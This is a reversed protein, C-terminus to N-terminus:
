IKAWPAPCKDVTFLVRHTIVDFAKLSEEGLAIFSKSDHMFELDIALDEYQIEDIIKGLKSHRIELKNLENSLVQITGDPSLCMSRINILNEKLKGDFDYINMQYNWFPGFCVFIEKTDYAM